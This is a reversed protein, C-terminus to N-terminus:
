KAVVVMTQLEIGNGRVKIAYTGSKLTPINITASAFGVPFFLNRKAMLRGNMDYIYVDGLARTPSFVRVVLNDAGAYYSYIEQVQPNAVPFITLRAGTIYTIAYNNSAAGAPTIDYLGPTSNVTASTLVSPQTTLVSATEGLVFGNYVFTFAPNPQGFLRSTDRVSIILPAKTVTLTRVVDTAAFFGASGAQSATITTTGAGKISIVGIANVTAIATNSSTYTIPTTANTSTAGTTFDPAGYVKTPLAAFTIVQNSKAIVFLTDNVFTIAYNNSAAGSVTILYAGPASATTATTSITPQTLLAVATEGLVFGTYTITLPPNATQEFRTKRDAKITLPAKNVTLTRTVSVTDYLGGDGDQKATIDSTGAGTIHILNNVITAVAPNSSTYVIPNTTNLSSAGPNFDAAGYTKAPIANFIFPNSPPKAGAGVAGFTFLTAQCTNTSNSGTGIPLAFATGTNKILGISSDALTAFTSGELIPQWMLHVTASDTGATRNVNWVANVVLQRQAATYPTGLVQGNTTIGQFVRASFDSTTRPTITVPLYYNETGIPILTAASIGDRLVIGQDGTTTNTQTAIYNTTTFTGAISGTALVHLTDLPRLSFKSNLTFIGSNTVNANSTVAANLTVNKVFAKTASASLGFPSTTAADIIYNIDAQYNTSGAFVLSGTTPNFGNTNSTQLTAGPASFSAAIGTATATLAKSIHVSDLTTSVYVVNSGAPIGAGSISYGRMITADTNGTIIYSGKSTNVNSTAAAVPGFATFNGLGTLQLTGFNIKGYISANTGADTLSVSKSLLVSSNAAAILRGATISGTGSITQLTNGAFLLENSSTPDASITGNVILNGNIATQGSTHLVMSSGTNITLNNIRYVSGEETLVAANEVSVNGFSKRSFFSGAGGATSARIHYTSNPQFEVPTFASSSGMPSSGGEYYLDSGDEFTVWRETSQTSSGFAYAASTATINSTFASGSKFILVAPSSATAINEIRCQQSTTMKFVGQVVASDSQGLLSIRQSGTSGSFVVTSGAAIFFDVGLSGNVSMTSTGSSGRQFTVNANNIFSLQAFAIGSNNMVTVPGTAPATGGVNTGDFVLLDTTGSSSPRNTGSGDLMTNWNSGSNIANSSAVGGVWYYTIQAFSFKTLLLLMFLYIFKKM